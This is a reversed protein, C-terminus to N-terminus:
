DVRVCFFCTTLRMVCDWISRCHMVFSISFVIHSRTSPTVRLEKCWMRFSSSFFFTVTFFFVYDHHEPIM